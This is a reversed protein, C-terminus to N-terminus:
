ATASCCWARAEGDEGVQDVEGDHGHRDRVEHRRDGLEGEEDRPAAPHLAPREGAVERDGAGLTSNEM